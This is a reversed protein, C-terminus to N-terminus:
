YEEAWLMTAYAGDDIVYVKGEVYNGDVSVFEYEAKYEPVEQEHIIVQKWENEEGKRKSFRFIQLYDLKHTKGAQRIMEWMLIRYELPMRENIGKTEYREKDFMKDSTEQIINNKITLMEWITSFTVEKMDNSDLVIQESYYMKKVIDVAEEISEAKIHEIRSLQEKVEIDYERQM